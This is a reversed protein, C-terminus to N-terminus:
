QPRHHSTSPAKITPPAKAPIVKPILIRPAAKVPFAALQDDSYTPPPAPVSHALLELFISSSSTIPVPPSPEAM